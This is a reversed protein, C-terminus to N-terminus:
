FWRVGAEIDALPIRYKGAVTKGPIKIPYCGGVGKELMYVSFRQNCARCVVSGGDHRYGRKKPYCTMCADFYSRINEGTKLVFFTVNKGNKRYTFYRPLEPSLEVTDLVVNAGILPPPPYGSASQQSCAVTLQFLVSVLIVKAVSQKSHKM